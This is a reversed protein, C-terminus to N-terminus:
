ISANEEAKLAEERKIEEYFTAQAAEMYPKVFLMGVGLTLIGLLIWGLFSLELYFLKMKRGQMLRMSERLAQRGTLNTDHLIYPTMSMGLAVIIGPIIVCIMGIIVCLVMLIYTITIANTRRFGELLSRFEVPHDTYEGRVIRLILIIFSWQVPLLALTVLIQWCNSLGTATASPEHHQIITQLDTAISAPLVLLSSVLSLGLTIYALTGWHGSLAARAERRIESNSKMPNPTLKDDHSQTAINNVM